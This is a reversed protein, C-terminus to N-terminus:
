KRMLKRLLRSLFYKIGKNRLDYQCFQKIINLKRRFKPVLPGLPRYRCLSNPHYPRLPLEKWPFTSCHDFIEVERLGWKGPIGELLQLSIEQINPIPSEFSIVTRLDKGISFIKETSGVSLKIKKPRFEEQYPLHLHIERLSIHEQFRFTICPTADNASPIWTYTDYNSIIDAKAQHIPFVDALKGDNLFTAKGSSVAVQAHIALNNCDRYFYLADANVMRNFHETVYQSRYIKCLKYIPSRKCFIPYYRRPVQVRTGQESSYPFYEETTLRTEAMPNAYYDDPGFWVGAYAYKKLVIPRYPTTCILERLIEDFLLATMRHDAHEDLDVCVICEAQESLIVEKMDAKVSDRCYPRHVGHTHFAHDPANKFGYTCNHGGPTTRSKPALTHYTHTSDFGPDDGYGLYTIKSIGMKKAVAETEAHRKETVKPLYDGNTVLLLHLQWSKKIFRNAVTGLLNLEDDGHPAIILLKKCNKKTM